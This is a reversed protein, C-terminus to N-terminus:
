HKLWLGLLGMGVIVILGIIWHNGAGKDGVSALAVRTAEDRGQFKADTARREAEISRDVMKQIFEITSLSMEDPM